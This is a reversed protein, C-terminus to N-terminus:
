PPQRAAAPPGEDATARLACGQGRRWARQFRLPPCAYPGCPQRAAVRGQLSLRGLHRGVIAGMEARCCGGQAGSQGRRLEKHGSQIEPRIEILRATHGPAADGHHHARAQLTQYASPPVEMWITAPADRGEAHLPELKRQGQRVMLREGSALEPRSVATGFALLTTQAPMRSPAVM